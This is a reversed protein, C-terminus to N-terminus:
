YLTVHGLATRARAITDADIGAQEMGLLVSGIVPPATLHIPRAGPAVQHVTEMMADQVVPSGKFFSGAMVLDFELAQFNLQNCVAIAMKGCEQGAWRIIDQAVADGEAAVRFIAPATASPIRYHNLCLGEILDEVDKAGAAEILLQTLRTPPTLQTWATAVVEIAKAILEIAGAGEGFRLGMGTVRGERRDKDWGRCNCGTGAAVCIGWGHPSAALLGPLADNILGIPADLGLVGIADLHPQRQSEFDFNAIGFGAGSIEHKSIGAQECAQPVIVQLERTLPTYDGGRSMGSGSRGFGRVQGTEDAIVAHSKTGGIDVGLFYQTM